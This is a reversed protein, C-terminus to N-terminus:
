FIISVASMTLSTRNQYCTFHGTSHQNGATTATPFHSDRRKQPIELRLPFSPQPKGRLPKEVAKWRNNMEELLPWGEANYRGVIHPGYTLTLTDDLHEHVIM